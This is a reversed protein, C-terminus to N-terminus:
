FKMTLSSFDFIQNLLERNARGFMVDVKSKIEIQRGGSERIEMEIHCDSRVKKGLNGASAQTNM